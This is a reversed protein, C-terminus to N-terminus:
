KDVVPSDIAQAVASALYNSRMLAESPEINCAQAVQTLVQNCAQLQLNSQGIQAEMGKINRTAVQAIDFGSLRVQTLEEKLAANEQQLPQVAQELKQTKAMLEAIQKQAKELQKNLEKSM